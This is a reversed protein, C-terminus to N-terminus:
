VGYVCVDVVGAPVTFFSPSITSAKKMISGRCSSVSLHLLLSFHKLPVTCLKHHVKFNYNKEKLLLKKNIKCHFM